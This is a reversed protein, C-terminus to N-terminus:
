SGTLETFWAEDKVKEFDADKKAGAKMKAADSGARELAIKLASKAKKDGLRAYACSLNYAPTPFTPDAVAAKLFLQSSKDFENKKHHAFGADNYAQAAARPVSVVGVLFADSFEGSFTHAIAGLTKGDPSVAVVEPHVSMPDLKRADALIISWSPSEGKVRAGVRLTKGNPSDWTIELDRAFAWNSSTTKFGLAKLRSDITAHKKADVEGSTDNWDGLTETGGKGKNFVCKTDGRGGNKQCYGLTSSDTSWGFPSAHDMSGKALAPVAPTLVVAGSSGFDVEDLASAEGDSKKPKDKDKDKAEDKDDDDSKKDKKKSKSPKDDDDDSKKKDKDSTPPKESSEKPCGISGLAVLCMLLPLRSKVAALM